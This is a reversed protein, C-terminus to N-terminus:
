NKPSLLNKNILNKTVVEKISFTKPSVLKKQSFFFVWSCFLIPIKKRRNFFLNLFINHFFKHVLILKIYFFILYGKLQCNKIKAFWKKKKKKKNHKITFFLITDSNDSIDCRDNGESCDRSDSSNYSDHTLTARSTNFPYSKWLGEGALLFVSM